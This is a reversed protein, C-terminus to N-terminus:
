VITGTQEQLKQEEEFLPLDLGTETIHIQSHVPQQTDQHTATLVAETTGNAKNNTSTELNPTDKTNCIHAHRNIEQARTDEPTQTTSHLQNGERQGDTADKKCPM